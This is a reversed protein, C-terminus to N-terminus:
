TSLDIDVMTQKVYSKELLVAFMNSRYAENFDDLSNADTIVSNAVYDIINPDANGHCGTEGFDFTISESPVGKMNKRGLGKYNFEIKATGKIWRAEIDGLTGIIHLRRSSNLCATNTLFSILPGNECKISSHVAHPITKKSDFANVDEYVKYKKFYLPDEHEEILITENKKNEPTWINTNGFTVATFRNIDRLILLLIDFVHINKEVYQGGSVEIFRRWNTMIFAGHGNHLHDHAEITTVQGIKKVLELIKQYFLSYRLVFGTMFNPRHTGILEKLEILKEETECLPKECFIQADSKIIKKLHELHLNNMSCIMWLDINDKHEDIADLNDTIIMADKYEEKAIKIADLNQDYIGYVNFYPHRKKLLNIMHKGRHGAGMLFVNKMTNM